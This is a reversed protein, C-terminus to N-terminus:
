NEKSNKQKEGPGALIEEIEEFCRATFDSSFNYKAERNAFEVVKFLYDLRNISGIYDSAQKLQQKLYRNENWLSDAAEKLKDYPLKEEKLDKSGKVPQMKVNKTENKKEEM